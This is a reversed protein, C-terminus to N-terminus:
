ATLIRMWTPVATCIKRSQGVAIRPKSLNWVKTKCFFYVPPLNKYQRGLHQRQSPSGVAVDLVIGALYDHFQEAASRRSYGPTTRESGRTHIHARPRLNKFYRKTKQAQKTEEKCM